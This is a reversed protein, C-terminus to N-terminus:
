HLWVALLPAALVSLIGAMVMILGAVSGEVEGVERAKATGVAHAGMGFLAGRAFASRLPLCGLLLEGLSAGLLGTIVVFTATLEPTGGVTKGFELAFPTTISRPLLSLQLEPALGLAKALCWSSAFALTSGTLVGVVLVGWHKRILDRQGYIPIAFAMVAPGLLAQLWHTGLLYNRYSVRLTLALTCCLAWTVLLPSTYWHPHRQYLRRAILYLGVTVAGCALALLRSPLM